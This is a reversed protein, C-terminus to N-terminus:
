HRSAAAGAEQPSVAHMSAVIANIKEQTASEEDESNGLYMIEVANDERDYLILKYIKFKTDKGSIFEFGNMEGLHIHKVTDSELAIVEKLALSNYALFQRNRPQWYSLEDPTVEFLASLAEFHTRHKVGGMLRWWITTNREMDYALNGYISGTNFTCSDHEDSLYIATRRGISHETQRAIAWPLRFTYGDTTVESTAGTYLKQDNLEAPRSNVPPHDFNKRPLPLFLLLLCIILFCAVALRLGLKFFWVLPKASFKKALVGFLDWRVTYWKLKVESM